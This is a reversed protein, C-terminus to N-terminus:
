EKPTEQTVELLKKLEEIIFLVQKSAVPFTGEGILAIAAKIVDDKNQM